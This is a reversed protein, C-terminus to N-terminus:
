GVSCEMGHEHKYLLRAAEKVTRIVVTNGMMDSASVTVGGFTMSGDAREYFQSYVVRTIMVVAGQQPSTLSVTKSGATGTMNPLDVNIGYLNLMDIAQDILGEMTADDFTSDLNLVGIM